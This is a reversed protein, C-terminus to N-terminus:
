DRAPGLTRHPGSSSESRLSVVLRDADGRRRLALVQLHAYQSEQLLLAYDRRRRWYTRLVWWPIWDPNRLAFSERNGAWLQERTVIRRVTRYVARPFVISFPLDLWILTTARRWVRERVTAYNGDIVWGPGAIAREVSTVFQNTPVPTWRPGWHLADLEVHPEGLVASLARALTTKGACSTGVIVVRALRSRDLQGAV